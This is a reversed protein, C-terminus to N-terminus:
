KTSSFVFQMCMACVLEMVIAFQASVFCVCVCVSFGSLTYVNWGSHPVYMEHTCVSCITTLRILRHRQNTRRMKWGMRNEIFEKVKERDRDTM